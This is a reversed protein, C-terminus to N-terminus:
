LAVEELEGEENKRYTKRFPVGNKRLIAVAGELDRRKLTVCYGCGQDEMWKPTRLVRCGIGAKMLVAEGRQAHTVSRFTIYCGNM